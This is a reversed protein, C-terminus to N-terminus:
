DALKYRITNLIMPEALFSSREEFGVLFILTTPMYEVNKPQHDAIIEACIHPYM